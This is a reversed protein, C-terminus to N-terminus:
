DSSEDISKESSELIYCSILDATHLLVALPYRNYIATIEDKASDNSMAGHHHLIAVSEELTLPCYSSIMYESTGEHNYFLFRNTSDIVKYEKISQWDFRGSEDYKTGNEHYVKQNRYYTEYYNVKSIDHFLSVIKISDEDINIDSDKVLKVLTDYVNLSHKVLGGKFSSHYKSTAPAYYFDTSELYKLLLDKNFGERSISNVLEIFRNKNNQICLESLM